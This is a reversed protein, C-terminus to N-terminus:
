FEIGTKTVVFDIAIFEIARAPMVFVKAYMINQDVLDATTTREDLVLKYQVIGLRSQIDRLILDAQGRFRAWTAQVNQDFLVTDAVRGIRKKLYIMLRRVNIRDLASKTQQLTKQGFIVTEGISPFRAVPNINRQYLEDRNSKSLQKWASLVRPGQQGGLQSLGGRNFGAPAFWPAGANSDSFALAGLGAISAPAILTDNNGSITDRIRVRPFYTAAYSTNYDRSDANTKVTAIAGGARTGNNEYTETYGDNLDIIALADGRDEAVKILDNTLSENVLGPMSIVDFSVSEASRCMDIAKSVTYYAYSTSETKNDLAVTSSFPDALRVDLGDFGGFLPVAFQRVKDSILQSSGSGATEARTDAPGAVAHSGSAWYYLGSSSDKVVEDLTFVFSYETANSTSHLDVSGGKFKLLDIYDRQAYVGKENKSAFKHRVGFMDTNRYNASSKNTGQETLKLRPFTYSASMYPGVKAFITSDGGAHAMTANGKVYVHANDDTDTGASVAGLAIDNGTDGAETMSFLATGYLSASVGLIYGSGATGDNTVATNLFGVGNTPIAQLVTLIRAGVSGSDTAGLGNVGIKALNNTDFSGSSAGPAVASDFDLVYKIGDSGTISIIAEDTIDGATITIEANTYSGGSNIFDNLTQPGLSGHTLSFGKPRVPGFFGWPLMYSDDIGAKWDDAMEIRIFDSRNPYDGAIDFVLNTTNWTQYMNGVKKAVFSDSSEDLNCNSFQEVVEGTESARRVNVSFTSNPNTPTGLKLDEITVYYNNQFWEGEHLAVFRFLKKMQDAQFDSANSQPTPDRNIIWGSKAATAESQHTIMNASGSVLPLLIGWQKGATSGLNLAQVAEEFSEGLFYKKTNASGYNTSFTKLPNTNLVNRIYNDKKDPDFHFTLKEVVSSESYSDRIELTFTNAVGEGTTLSQILTGASSTATGGNNASYTQDPLTGSITVACGNTYIIAALTGDSSTDYSASPLIFLGYATNNSAHTTSLAAGGMDWGAKTYGAAQDDSDNGLLRVVTVPSTESALWAQAAYAAYTPSQNNGDRWIDNNTTGKGSIPEGFISLYDRLNTVKTPQMSPGAKTRGIILLGDDTTEAEIISEDIESLSIGPSVFDFKRPM